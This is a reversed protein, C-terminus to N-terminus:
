TYPVGLFEPFLYRAVSEPVKDGHQLVAAQEYDHNRGPVADCYASWAGEIRTRAVVLVRSALAGRRTIPKWAEAEAQNKPFHERWPSPMAKVRTFVPHETTPEPATEM